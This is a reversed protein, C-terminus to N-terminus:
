TAVWCGYADVFLGGSVKGTGDWTGAISQRYGGVDWTADTVTAGPGGDMECTGVLAHLSSFVAMIISDVM